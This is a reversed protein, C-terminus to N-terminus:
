KVECHLLKQEGIFGELVDGIQVRGVGEPTGTFILDGQQITFFKSIYSIITDFDFLLNATNGNQVPQGNKLLTFGINNVAPLTSLAVFQGIPASGDFGKAIEWPHGKTKLRSQLDRATFDIGITLHDYYKHAFKPDIHKGNKAIRVVIEAEHHIDDSFDPHYFPAGDKLLATPPKAFIIPEDPIANGLEKAHQAYNRGICFIKM